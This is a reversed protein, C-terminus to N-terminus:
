AWLQLGALQLFRCAAAHSEDVPSIVAMVCVVARLQVVHAVGHWDKAACCEGWQAAAHGGHKSGAIIPSNCGFVVDHCGCHQLCAINNLHRSAAFLQPRCGVLLRCVLTTLTSSGWRYRWRIVNIDKPRVRIKGTEDEMEEVGGDFMNPDYPRPDIRIINPVKM